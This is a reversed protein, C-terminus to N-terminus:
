FSLECGFVVSCFHSRYTAANAITWSQIGGTNYTLVPGVYLSFGEHGYKQM